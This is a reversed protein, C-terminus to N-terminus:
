SLNPPPFWRRKGTGFWISFPVGLETFYPTVLFNVSTGIRSFAVVTGFAFALQKGEFWRATFTNQAVTLSEGGLGFVFRGVIALWYLKFSIGLSFITQGLFIM